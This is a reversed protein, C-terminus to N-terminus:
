EKKLQKTKKTRCKGCLVSGKDVMFRISSYLTRKCESCEWYVKADDHYRHNEPKDDGNLTPHWRLAIEKYKTQLDNVGKCYRRGSCIPCGNDGKGRIRISPERDWPQGCTNCYWWVKQNYQPTIDSPKLEGNLTPHWEKALDSYKKEFSNEGGKLARISLKM